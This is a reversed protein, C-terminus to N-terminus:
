PTTPPSRWCPDCRRNGGGTTRAQNSALVAGRAVGNSARAAPDLGLGNLLADVSLVAVPLAELGLGGSVQLALLEVVARSDAVFLAEAANMAEPGGFRDVERDYTDFSFSQCEGRAMLETARASVLPLLDTLLRSPDGQFRLRIHRAPDGYRIFFWEAFGHGAAETTLQRLPGALLDNELDAGTYLKVFLWDSGPPRADLMSLPRPSPVAPTPAAERRILPVVLESAYRRGAADHLWMDEVDPFVETLVAGKERRLLRRLGDADVPRALDLPLRHDGSALALRRPADWRARWRDLAVRFAALDALEDTTFTGPAVRWQALSLIVRGLPGPASVPLRGGTGM